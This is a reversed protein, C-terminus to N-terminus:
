EKKRVFAAFGPPPNAAPVYNSWLSRFGADEMYFKIYDFKSWMIAHRYPRRDILVLEPERGLDRVIAERAKTEAFMVLDGGSPAGQERLRIVAPLYFQSNSTSAWRRDAYLATPFGPYPHTSIALFSGNRSTHSAVYEAIVTYNRGHRGTSSREELRKASVILDQTFAALLIAGLLLRQKRALLDLSLVLALVLLAYAPFLHYSYYKGQLVTAFAFGAAAAILLSVINSPRARIVLYLGALVLFYRTLLPVLKASFPMEFAWYIRLIDPAASTLWPGAYVVVAVSYGVVALLGGFAEPRTLLRPSRTKLLLLAEVLIPIGIFYPKLALALGATIGIALALGTRIPCAEIRLSTAFLYPLILMATLHERQGFDRHVAFAFIYAGTILFACRANVSAGSAAFLRDSVILSALAILAVFIRFVTWVPLEFQQALFVPSSSIWWILPPNPEIIDRGYVAGELLMGTSYLVWAVDHNLFTAAQVGLGALVIMASLLFPTSAVFRDRAEPAELKAPKM